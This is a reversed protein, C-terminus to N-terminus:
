SATRDCERVRNAEWEEYGCSREASVDGASSAPRRRQKTKELFTVNASMEPEPRIRTWRIGVKVTVTAKTRDATPIIQRLKGRFRKDGFAQVVIEAPQNAGLKSVNSENVDVEVEM